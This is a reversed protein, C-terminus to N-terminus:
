SASWGTACGTSRGSSVALAPAPVDAEGTVREGSSDPGVAEVVYAGGAEVAYSGSRAAEDGAHVAVPESEGTLVSADLGPPPRRPQGPAM